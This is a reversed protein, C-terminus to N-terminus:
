QAPIWHPHPLGALVDSPTLGYLPAILHLRIAPFYLQGSEQITLQEDCLGTLAAIEEITLDAGERAARLRRALMQNLTAEVTHMSEQSIERATPKTM